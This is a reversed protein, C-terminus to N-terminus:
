AAREHCFYRTMEALLLTRIISAIHIKYTLESGSRVYQCTSPRNRQHPFCFPPYKARRMKNKKCVIFCDCSQSRWRGALFTFGAQPPACKSLGIFKSFSPAILILEIDKKLLVGAPRLRVSSEAATAAV